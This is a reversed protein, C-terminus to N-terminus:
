LYNKKKLVEGEILLATVSHPLLQIEGALTKKMHMGSFKGKNVISDVSEPGKTTVVIKTPM